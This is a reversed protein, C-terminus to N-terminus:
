MYNDLEDLVDINLDGSEELIEVRAEEKTDVLSKGSLRIDLLREVLDSIAQADFKDEEVVIEKRACNKVWESFNRLGGIFEIVDRDKEM